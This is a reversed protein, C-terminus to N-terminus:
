RRNINELARLITGRLLSRGSSSRQRSDDCYAYSQDLSEKAKIYQGINAYFQALNEYAESINCKSGRIHSPKAYKEDPQDKLYLDVSEKYCQEARSFDEKLFYAEGMKGLLEARETNGYVLNRSKLLVAYVDLAKEIQATDTYFKAINFYCVKNDPEYDIAKRLYEEASTFDKLRQYASSLKNCSRIFGISDRKKM